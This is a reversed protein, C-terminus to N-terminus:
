VGVDRRRMTALAAITGVVGIAVLAAIGGWDVKTMPTGYLDFFSLHRIWDPWGFLPAFQQIFYSAVTVAGLLVVAVRPRWGVLVHGLGAIAFAVALTLATAVVFRDAPVDIGAIGAALYVTGSASFMVIAAEVLIAAIRELVVRTRSAGAALVMELRGEADDAAWGNAQVIVLASLLLLATSFWIVGIFDSYAGIGLREFYVRLSPISVLTDIMTRVLSTLFYGLAALGAAWGVIWWRQQDITALVPIRLLPDASPRFTARTRAVGRRVLAGGVDRRVFAATALGILVAWIAYLGLTAAADFTGGELLPASRDFLYFPSAWALAGTDAGARSSSNLLYLALVVAAAITAASRRSIVLQGVAAGVAFGVLTVGVLLVGELAMAVISAPEGAVLTGLETGACTAAVSLLAALGFGGSRTLLWRVRSVGASLWAETLGREEDGRAAGSGALAGWIAYLMAVSGFARWTLYGGITDLQIPAPLLYTLQRGLIEMQQAFAQREAHSQGAVQVFGIGNVIGSLAGILALAILGTRHSRVSLALLTV